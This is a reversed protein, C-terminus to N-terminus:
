ETDRLERRIAELRPLFVKYFTEAREVLWAFYENWKDRSEIDAGRLTQAVRGRWDEELPPIWELQEKVEAEITSKQSELQQYIISASKAKEVVLQCGLTAPQGLAKLELFVKPFGLNIQYYSEFLPDSILQPRAGNTNCFEVFGSWFEFQLKRLASPPHKTRKTNQAVVDPAVTFTRVLSERGDQAKFFQFRVANIEVGYTESLYRIIRETSDDIESAVVWMAHRENIDQPLEDNFKAQFAAGLTKDKLHHAAIADIEERDLDKVWSAYDLAQATVERPTMDRKLEVIVLNGSGDICLLDIRKGWATEVQQGIILLDPSLLSVDGIIWKEIRAELDLRSRKIETLADAKDVQWMRVEEAM